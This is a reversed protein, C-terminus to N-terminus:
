GHAAVDARAADRLHTVDSGGVVLRYGREHMAAVDDGAKPIGGLVVGSELARAEARELMAAVETDDFRGAKGIAASLDFPGIFLVDVGEVAAIEAINDVARPSEIQCMVVLNDNAKAGYEAARLGYDAARTVSYAVGRIGAPPYRCAAVAARAAEADEIAPIMVGEIGTDLARKIYVPDNWPVRMVTAAPTASVAQIQSVAGLLNGAGHEHDILVFDYGALAVIEAAIPSAMHLWCGLARGGQDLRRRLPSDRFV